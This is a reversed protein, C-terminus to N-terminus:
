DINSAMTTVTGMVRLENQTVVHDLHIPAKPFRIPPVTSELAHTLQDNPITNAGLSAYLCISLASESLPGSIGTGFSIHLLM